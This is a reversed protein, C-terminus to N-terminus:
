RAVSELFDAFARVCVDDELVADSRERIRRAIDARWAPDTGLRVAIDVYEAPTAAVCDDIGMHRYHALTGRGRIWRGPLTVVPVGMAFTQYNTNGAGFPWTDLVADAVAIVGIFGDLPRQALVVVRDMLSGFRNRWRALLLRTWSAEKAEFIVLHGSPDRQLIALLAADMDPHIKILNQPCLYLAGTEPLGISARDPLPDPRPLRPYRSQVGALRILPETYSDQADAPEAFDNSVYYDISPLGTTDPHGWTVCQVPALRAFALFYSFMEMGIDAYILVELELAAIAARAAPLDYPVAVIRDVADRMRRAVTAEAQVLTIAQVEFRERPLHALLDHIMWAVAHEGFYRSFIGVRIPGRRAEATLERRQPATWCLSPCAAAYFRALLELLERDNEGHYALYFSMAPAQLVTGELSVGAELLREFGQRFHGRWFRIDEHSAAIVPLLGAKAVLYRPDRRIAIADRLGNAAAATEGEAALTMALNFRADAFGPDIAIAQELRRRAEDPRDLQRLANGLGNYAAALRPAARIAREYAEVAADFEGLRRLVNGLNALAEAFDPRLAAAKELLGRAEDLRDERERVLGLNNWAGANLPDARVARALCDGARRLDGLALAVIGGNTLFLGEGPQAAIAQEIWDLAEAHRGRAHMSLGMLHLGDGNAPDADLVSRLAKEAADHDGAQQLRLANELAASGDSMGRLRARM